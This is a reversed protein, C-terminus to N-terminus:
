THTDLCAWIVWFLLKAIKKSIDRSLLLTFNIKKCASLCSFRRWISVITKSPSPCASEFNGFYFTQLTNVIDIYRCYRSWWIKRFPSVIMTSLCLWANEFQQLYCTQLIKVIDRFFTIYPTRKKVHLNVDFNRCTPMIM